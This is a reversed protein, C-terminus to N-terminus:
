QDRTWIAEFKFQKRVYPECISTRLILPKRDFNTESLYRLSANPFLCWWETNAMGRDIKSYIAGNVRGNYWSFEGGFAQLEIMGVDDLANMVVEAMNNTRRGGIRKSSRLEVNFDGMLLWPKSFRSAIRELSGWFETKAYNIHPDYIVLLLWPNTESGNYVVCSIANKLM